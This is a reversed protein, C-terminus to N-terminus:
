EGASSKCKSTSNKKTSAKPKDQSDTANDQVRLLLTPEANPSLKWYEKGLRSFKNIYKSEFHRSCFHSKESLNLANLKSKRASLKKAPTKFLHINDDLQKSETYSLNCVLCFTM